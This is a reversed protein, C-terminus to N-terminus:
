SSRGAAACETEHQLRTCGCLIRNYGRGRRAGRHSSDDPRSRLGDRGPIEATRSVGKLADGFSLAANAPLQKWEQFARLAAAGESQAVATAAAAIFALVLVAQDARPRSKPIRIESPAVDAETIPPTIRSAAPATSGPTAAPM